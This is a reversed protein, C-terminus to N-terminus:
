GKRNRHLDVLFPPQPPHRKIKIRPAKHGGTPYPRLASSMVGVRSTSFGILLLSCCDALIAMIEFAWLLFCRDCVLKVGFGEWSKPGLRIYEIWSFRHSSRSGATVRALSSHVRGAGRLCLDDLSPAKPIPAKEPTPLEFAFSRRFEICERLEKAEWTKQTIGSVASRRKMELLQSNYVDLNPPHRSIAAAMWVSARARM